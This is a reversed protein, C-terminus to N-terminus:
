HPLCGATGKLWSGVLKSRGWPSSPKSFSAPPICSGAEYFTQTASPSATSQECLIPVKLALLM